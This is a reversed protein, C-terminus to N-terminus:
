RRKKRKQNPKISSKRGMAKRKSGTQLKSVKTLSARQDLSSHKDKFDLSAQVNLKMGALVKQTEETINIRELFKRFEDAIVDLILDKQKIARDTLAKVLDSSLSRLDFVSLVAKTIHAPDSLSAIKKTVDSIIM